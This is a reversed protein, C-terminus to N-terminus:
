VSAITIEASSEGCKWALAHHESSFYLCIIEGYTDDLPTDFNCALYANFYVGHHFYLSIQCLAFLKKNQGTDEGWTLLYLWNKNTIDKLM